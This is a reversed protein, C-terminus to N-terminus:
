LPGREKLKNISEDDLNMKKLLTQYRPNDKLEPLDQSLNHVTTAFFEPKNYARELWTIGEDVYGLRISNFGIWTAFPRKGEVAEYLKITHELNEEAEVRNGIRWHWNTRLSLTWFFDKGLINEMARIANDSEAFREMRMYVDALFFYAFFDAPNLELGEKLKVIAEEHRGLYLLMIGIGQKVLSSLPDQQELERLLKLAEAYRKQPLLFAFWAFDVVLVKNRGQSLAKRILTDAEAYDFDTMIRDQAKALLADTQNADIALARSYADRIQSAVSEYAGFWITNYSMAYALGGYGGAFGPELETVKTYSEIAKPFSEASQQEVFYRGRLYWNYAEVNDTGQKVLKEDKALGLKLHLKEIVTRAIEEQVAFIDSTDRNYTESWLHFGDEIKILQVTIRLRNGSKRVSGELVHNVNLTEGITKLNVKEGKFYFSSTRAAVQLDQIQALGNLIEEAIGDGFYEQEPDASMNLFPLVAISQQVETAVIEDPADIPQTRDPLLVFREVAFMVLALMLVGIIIFDLKRGTILTISESRDVDTEKKLGEPTLEYAWAFFLALPFGVLLLLFILRGVWEPLALLPVLVDAFQLILWGVIVYSVTVRVVNRRKLEGWLSAM